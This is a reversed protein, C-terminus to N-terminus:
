KNLILVLKWSYFSQLRSCNSYHLITVKSLRQVDDFEARIAKIVGLSEELM